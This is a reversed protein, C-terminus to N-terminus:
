IGYKDVVESVAKFYETEGMNLGDAIARLAKNARSTDDINFTLALFYDFIAKPLAESLRRNIRSINKPISPSFEKLSWETIREASEESFQSDAWVGALFETTTRTWTAYLRAAMTEKLTTNEPGTFLGSDRMCDHIYFAVDQLDQGPPHEKYRKALFILICKPPVIFRYRWNMLRLFANSLTEVNILKEEFLKL